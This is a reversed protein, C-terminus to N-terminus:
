LTSPPSFPSGLLTTVFSGRAHHLVQQALHPVDGLNYAAANEEMRKARAGVDKCPNQPDLGADPDPDSDHMEGIEVWNVRPTFPLGQSTDPLCLWLSLM